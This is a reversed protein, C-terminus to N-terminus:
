LASEMNNVIEQELSQQTKDKIHCIGGYQLVYDFAKLYIREEAPLNKRALNLALQAFEKVPRAYVYGKWGRAMLDNEAQQIHTVSLAHSVIDQRAYELGEDSYLLGKILACYALMFPFPVSDAVRIELFQKLRVDPFAMSLIHTIEEESVPKGAMIEQVPKTGTPCIRSGHKVFIPPMKGLFQVYNEFGYSDSFVDPGIACRAPDVRRWIDTRKLYTYIPKGQFSPANDCLLKFLPAYYYAAQIKHRFDAEGRYDVSVQLSATARMMETGGTGTHHFYNNMLEYRKKPIMELESVRSVPQCGVQLAMYGFEALVSDLKQRFDHYIKGIKQISHNPAISIELQAAPELTITFDEVAFGFLDEGPLKRATPYCTILRELVQRIGKPSSYAVAQRTQSELIFHEIEVGLAKCAGQKAGQEFYQIFSDSWSRM